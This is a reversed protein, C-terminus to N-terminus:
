INGQLRTQHASKLQSTQGALEGHVGLPPIIGGKSCRAHAPQSYGSVESRGSM